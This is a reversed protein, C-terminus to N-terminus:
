VYTKAFELRSQKLRSESLWVEEIAAHGNDPNLGAAIADTVAQALKRALESQLNRQHRADNIDM